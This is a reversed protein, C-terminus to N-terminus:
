ICLVLVLQESIDHVFARAYQLQSKFSRGHTTHKPKQSTTLNKKCFALTYGLFPALVSGDMLLHKFTIFLVIM